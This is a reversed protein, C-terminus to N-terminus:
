KHEALELVFCLDKDKNMVVLLTPSLIESVTASDRVAVVSTNLLLVFLPQTRGLHRNKIAFAILETINYTAGIHIWASSM